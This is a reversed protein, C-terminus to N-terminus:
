NKLFSEWNWNHKENISSIEEQKNGVQPNVNTMQIGQDFQEGFQGQTFQNSKNNEFTAITINHSQFLILLNVIFLKFIKM